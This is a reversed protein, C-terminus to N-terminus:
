THHWLGAVGGTVQTGNVTETYLGWTKVTLLQATGM